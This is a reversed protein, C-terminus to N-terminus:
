RVATKRRSPWGAATAGEGTELKGEGAVEAEVLLLRSVLAGVTLCAIRYVAVVSLHSLRVRSVTWQGRRVIPGFDGDHCLLRLRVGAPVHLIAATM